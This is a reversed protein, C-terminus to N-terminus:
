DLRGNWQRALEDRDFDDMEDHPDVARLTAAEPEGAHANRLDELVKNGPLPTVRASSPRTMRADERQGAARARQRNTWVRGRATDLMDDEAAQAAEAPTAGQAVHQQYVPHDRFTVVNAAEAAEQPSFGQAIRRKYIPHGAIFKSVGGRGASEIREVEQAVEDQAHRAELEKGFRAARPSPEAAPAPAAPQVRGRLERAQKLIRTAFASRQAKDSGEEDDDGGKALVKGWTKAANFAQKKGKGGAVLSDYVRRAGGPLTAPDGGPKDEPPAKPKKNAAGIPHAPPFDPLPHIPRAAAQRRVKDQRLEKLVQNGASPTVRASSPTTLDEPPQNTAALAYQPGKVARPRQPGPPPAEATNAAKVAHKPPRGTALAQGTEAQAIRAAKGKDYGKKLLAQYVEDVKSGRPM